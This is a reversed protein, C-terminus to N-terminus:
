WEFNDVLDADLIGFAFGEYISDTIYYFNGNQSIPIWAIQEFVEKRLCINKYDGSVYELNDFLELSYDNKGCFHYVIDVENNIFLDKIVKIRHPLPYYQPDNTILIDGKAIRCAMNKIEGIHQNQYTLVLEIPIIDTVNKIKDLDYETVKKANSVAVIIEDPLELQNCYEEIIEPINDINRPGCHIIVSTSLAQVIFPISLLIIFIFNKM